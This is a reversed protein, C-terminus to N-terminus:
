HLRHAMGQQLHARFKLPFFSSMGTYCRYLGCLAGWEDTTLDDDWHECNSRSVKFSQGVRHVMVAHSPGELTADHSLIDKALRWAIGGRLLAARGRSGSLLAMRDHLYAAYDQRTFIYNSLRMPTIRVISSMSISSAVPRLPRLTRFPIGRQILLHAIAYINRVGNHMLRFAYLVHAARYLGLRWESAPNAPLSLVFIHIPRGDDDSTVSSAKVFNTGPVLVLAQQNTDHLDWSDPQPTGAILSGVFRQMSEEFSSVTSIEATTFGITRRCDRWKKVSDPQTQLEVLPNVFGYLESLIASPEFSPRLPDEFDDVIAGPEDLLPSPSRDLPHSGLYENVVTEQVPEVPYEYDEQYMSDNDDDGSFESCVDWENTFADFRARSGYEALVDLNWKKSVKERVRRSPDEDSYVWQYVTANTTPPDRARAERIQRQALTETDLRHKHREARNDLFIRWQPRADDSVSQAPAPAIVDSVPTFITLSRLDESYWVPHDPPPEPFTLYRTLFTTAAQFLEPPPALRAMQM